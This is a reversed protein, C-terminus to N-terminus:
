TSFSNGCGCSSTSNPNEIEFSEFGLTKVYKIISGEMFGISIDDIIIKAGNNEVVIDKDTIDKAPIFDYKYQLGFCGGGEVSIRLVQDKDQGEKIIQKIRESADDTLKINHNSTTDNM